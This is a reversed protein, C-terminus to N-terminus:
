HVSLSWPASTAAHIPARRDRLHERAGGAFVSQIEAVVSLAIEQPTEAALDLGAPAFFDSNITAGSDIVDVLLEERRRRPGILGVYRLGLPLLFRLAACDRGFHHSGIVAATRADVTTHFDNISNLLETDWGLLQALRLLAAADAGDGIVILRLAPEIRHVFIGDASDACGISTGLEDAGELVTVLDFSERRGLRERLEYM